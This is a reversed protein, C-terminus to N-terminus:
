ELRPVTIKRGGQLKRPNDIGNARAIERWKGPDDYEEAAVMWLEEGQNLMKQKTRDASHRPIHQLQEKKTYWSKFSVRLTARVPIGSELFMTYKSSVKEVVGKFNLSGWVFQCVPPAHLEKEIDLLGVIKKTHDRVDTGKEYTDFFMDMTLTSSEGNVFQGIPYSLGPIKKWRYYNGSELSYENPNFMVDITEKKGKGKDIIIMAKKLAM